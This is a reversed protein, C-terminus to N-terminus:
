TPWRCARRTSGSGSRARRAGCSEAGDPADIAADARRRGALQVVLERHPAYRAKLPEVAGDYLVRGQDIVIIRRCLREVDDLDHTTLM